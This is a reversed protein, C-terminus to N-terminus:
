IKFLRDLWEVFTRAIPADASLVGKQFSTRIPRGPEEQWALWTYIFAKNRQYKYRHLEKAEIEDLIKEAYGVLNDGQLICERVFDELAGNTQNDPMLWVGIRPAYPDPSDIITGTPNPTLPPDYKLNARKIRDIIGQWRGERNGNADVVLGIVRRDDALLEEDFAKLLESISGARQVRFTEPLKHQKRLEWVVDQDTKGEVWLFADEKTTIM